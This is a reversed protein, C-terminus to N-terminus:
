NIYHSLLKKLVSIAKNMQNKVTQVEVEMIEAIENYSFGEFRSLVFTTRCREPLLSIAKQYDDLLFLSDLNEETCKSLLVLYNEDESSTKHERQIYNLCLNRAIKFIYAKPSSHTNLRERSLWFKVFVEQTLDQATEKNSTHRYIFYYISPQMLLFFEKFSDENHNKIEIILTLLREQEIKYM